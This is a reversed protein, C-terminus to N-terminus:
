IWQGLGSPWAAERSKAETYFHTKTSSYEYLFTEGTGSNKQLYIEKEYSLTKCSSKNQFLIELYSM